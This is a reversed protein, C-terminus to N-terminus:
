LIRALDRGRELQPPARAGLAESRLDILEVGVPQGARLRSRPIEGVGDNGAAWLNPVHSAPARRRHAGRGTGAVAPPEPRPRHPPAVPTRRATEAPYGLRCASAM